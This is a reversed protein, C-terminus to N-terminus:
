APTNTGLELLPIRVHITTGNGPTTDLEIRGGLRKTRERMGQLGFHGDAQGPAEAHEFGSGNDAIMIEVLNPTQKLGIRIQSAGSHKLANTVAEQALLLLNGAILDPL